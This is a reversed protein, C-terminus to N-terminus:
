KSSSRPDNNECYFTSKSPFNATGKQVVQAIINSSRQTLAGLRQIGGSFDAQSEIKAFSRSHGERTETTRERFILVEFISM